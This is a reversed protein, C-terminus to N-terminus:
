LKIKDGIETKTKRIVGNPLEIVYKAKEKSSYFSFPRFNEKKDVVINNKSLFLVDIPYFVFLM